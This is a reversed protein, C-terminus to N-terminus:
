IYDELQYHQKMRPPFMDRFKRAYHKGITGLRGSVGVYEFWQEKLENANTLSHRQAYQYAIYVAIAEHFISDFAPKKTTDTVAFSSIDRSFEVMIGDNKSYNVPPYLKIQNGIIRYQGATAPIDEYSPEADPIQELTIPTLKTWEDDNENQIYVADISINEPLEYNTQNAVLNATAIPLDTFNKDDYKWGGYVRFIVSLIKRNAMNAYLTKTAIPYTTNNQGCLENALTVIDQGNAESNYQM